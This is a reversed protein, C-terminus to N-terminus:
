VGSQGVLEVASYVSSATSSGVAAVRMGMSRAAALTQSLVDAGVLSAWAAMARPSTLVLWHDRGAVSLDDLLRAAPARDSAPVVTLYPDILTPIGGAALAAADAENGDPRVLLVPRM